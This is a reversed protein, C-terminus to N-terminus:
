YESATNNKWHGANVYQKELNKGEVDMYINNAEEM